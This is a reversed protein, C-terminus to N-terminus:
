KQHCVKCLLMREDIDRVFLKEGRGGHPNHCSACTFARGPTSPDISGQLPHSKGSGVGRLVHISADIGQHCGLCLQNVPMILQANHDTAHADHCVLCMGAEIPGHVFKNKRFEALKDSHCDNCMAADSQPKVQYGAPKSGPEHCWTCQFVGAPGHVHKRNLMRAHCSACPNVPATVGALAKATPTMNHCKACLAEREPLHMVYPRYGGPPTATPDKLFYVKASARAEMRGAVYGEIVLLNEGPDLEPEVILFDDFAERYQAGTLDFVDSKVGNIEISIGDFRPDVGGKIILYDSRVVYTGDAPYVLELAAAPGSSLLLLNLLAGLFLVANKMMDGMRGAADSPKSNRSTFM